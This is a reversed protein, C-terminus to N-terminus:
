EGTVRCHDCLEYVHYYMGLFILVRTKWTQTIGENVPIGSHPLITRKRSWGCVSCEYIVPRRAAGVYAVKNPM